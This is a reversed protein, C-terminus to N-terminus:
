IALRSKGSVYLQKALAEAEHIVEDRDTEPLKKWWGQSTLPGTPIIEGTTNGARQPVLLTDDGAGVSKEDILEDIQDSVVSTTGDPNAITSPNMMARRGRVM